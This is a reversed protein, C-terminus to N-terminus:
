NSELYDNPLFNKKIYSCCKEARDYFRVSFYNANINHRNVEKCAKDIKSHILNMNIRFDFSLSIYRNDDRFKKFRLLSIDIKKLDDATIEKSDEISLLFDLSEYCLSLIEVIKVNIDTVNTDNTIGQSSETVDQSPDKVKQSPETINRSPYRNSKLYYIHELLLKIQEDKIKLTANSAIESNDPYNEGRYAVMQCSRSCYKKDSRSPKKLEIGCVICNM